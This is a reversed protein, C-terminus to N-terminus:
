LKRKINTVSNWTRGGLINNITYIKLGFKNMIIKKSKSDEYEKLVNLVIEKTLKANGHKEGKPVKEPNTQAINRKKNSCDISNTKNTGLFLHDPRVCLKNDCKHCIIMESPITNVFLEYSVRHAPRNRGNFRFIGYGNKDKGAKWVWCENTKEVKLLFREEVPLNNTYIRNKQSKRNKITLRGKKVCDQMNDKFTGLFLHNPRVCARNDCKHCVVMGPGPEKKNQIIWCARSASIRRIRKTGKYIHIVGYGWKDKERIWEWCSNEDNIIKVKSWFKNELYSIYKLIEVAM